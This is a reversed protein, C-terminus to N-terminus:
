STSMYTITGSLTIEGGGSRYFCGSASTSLNASSTNNCQQVRTTINGSTEAVFCQFDCGGSIYAGSCMGGGAASFMPTFPLGSITIGTSNYGSACTAKILFGVTVSQGMKMYWGYQTTYSSVASSNLSPSWTGKELVPIPYDYVYVGNAVLNIRTAKITMVDDSAETIYCYDGDGFRITNGYNGDGKLRLDGPVNFEGESIGMAANELGEAGANFKVPVEFVFDSEGWHFLPISKVSSVGSERMELLDYVRAQFSYTKQYDLGSLSATAYYANGSRTVTMDSYGSWTGGQEKYRYQATLTNSRAGFSGNFCDGYCAVTVNGDGDPTNDEINCTLKIYDVMDLSMEAVGCNGRSDAVSFHFVNSEVDNFTYTPDLGVSSGNKIVYTDEDISAGKQAEASMTATADSHYRILKSSDGTLSITTSNTDVVSATIIPNANDIYFRRSLFSSYTKSGITTKLFFNVPISNSDACASRLLEREATTLPFTYSGGTKSVARYAIDAQGTWGIAAELASVATGAPNSYTITPNEGDIFNTATLLTAQRPIATLAMTGSASANGCTYRQNAKDTVSFSISISKTGDANHSVTQTGSKVTVTSVGDYDPIYGSYQTGNIQVTYSISTGWKAWDWNNQIPSLKFSFSLSSTNNETSTGTENVTLTFKHHGKAGNASITAM